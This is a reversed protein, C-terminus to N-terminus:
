AYRNAATKKLSKLKDTMATKAKGVGQTSLCV